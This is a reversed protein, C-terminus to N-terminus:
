TFSKDSFAFNAAFQSTRCFATLTPSDDGSNHLLECRLISLKWTETALVPVLSINQSITKIYANLARHQNMARNYIHDNHINWYRYCWDWRGEQISNLQYWIYTFIYDKIAKRIGSIPKTKPQGRGRHYSNWQSM